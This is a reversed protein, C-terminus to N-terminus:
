FCLNFDLRFFSRFQKSHVFAQLAAASPPNNGNSCNCSCCCKQKPKKNNNLCKINNNFNNNINNHCQKFNKKRLKKKTNQLNNGNNNNNNNNNYFNTNLNKKNNNNLRIDHEFFKNNGNIQPKKNSNINFLNKNFKKLVKSQIKPKKIIKNSNNPKNDDIINSLNDLMNKWLKKFIILNENTISATTSSSPTTTSTILMTDPKLSVNAM